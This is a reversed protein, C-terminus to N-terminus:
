FIGSEKEINHWAREREEPDSQDCVVNDIEQQTEGLAQAVDGVVLLNKQVRVVENKFFAQEVNNIQQQAELVAAILSITFADSCRKQDLTNM